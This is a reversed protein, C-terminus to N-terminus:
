SEFPALGHNNMHIKIVHQWRNPCHSENLIYKQGKSMNEDNKSYGQRRACFTRPEDQVKKVKSRSVVVKALLRPEKLPYYYKFALIHARARRQAIPADASGYGRLPCLYPIYTTNHTSTHIHTYYRIHSTYM